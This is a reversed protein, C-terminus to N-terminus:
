RGACGVGQRRKQGQLVNRHEHQTRSQRSDRQSDHALGRELFLDAYLVLVRCVRELAGVGSSSEKVNDLNM